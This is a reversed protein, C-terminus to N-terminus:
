EFILGDNESVDVPMTRKCIEKNKLNSTQILTYQYMEKNQNLYEVQYRLIKSFRLLRM